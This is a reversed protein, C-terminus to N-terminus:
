KRFETVPLTGPFSPKEPLPRSGDIAELYTVLSRISAGTAGAGNFAYPSGENMAPGAIDLHAWSIRDGTVDNGVFDRLFVGAVLMGGSRNGMNSNVIDAIDSKLIGRLEDTLPMPWLLEGAALGARHIQSVLADDGMLGSTRDGLAVQQAGTLTAVDIIANPFELSAASIADGLVLRGEADTNTIEITQGNHATVVDGPRTARGSPMNEALPLWATVSVNLALEAAARLVSLVSAAGAMDSKMGLMSGAPKLSLGGTDYTIGKGVLAIHHTAGEPRYAVRLLRPGRESGQGVAVIAGFGDAALQAEDWVQAELGESALEPLVRAVFSEPFIENGPLNVLDKTRAVARAIVRARQDAAADASAHLVVSVTEDEPASLGRASDFRYGGLLLGEAIAAASNPSDEQSPAAVSLQSVGVLQRLASGAAARFADADARPGLGALCLVTSPSGPLTIRLLQDAAGSVGLQTLPLSELTEASLAPSSVIEPSDGGKVFVLIARGETPSIPDSSRSLQVNRSMSQAYFQVAVTLRVGCDRESIACDSHGVSAHPNM